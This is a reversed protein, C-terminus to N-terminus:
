VEIKLVRPTDTLDNTITIDKFNMKEALGRIKQPQSGSMEVFLIGKKAPLKEGALKFLRRYFRLGDAGDTLAAQPEHDLIEGALSLM